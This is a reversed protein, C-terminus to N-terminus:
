PEPLEAGNGRELFSVQGLDDRARHAIEAAANRVQTKLHFDHLVVFRDRPDGKVPLKDLPHDLVQNSVRDVGGILGSADDFHSQAPPAPPVLHLEADFVVAAAHRGGLAPPRERGPEARLPATPPQPQRKRPTDHALVMVAPDGDHFGHGALPGGHGHHQRLGRGRVGTGRLGQASLGMANCFLFIRHASSSISRKFGWMRSRSDFPYRTVETEFPLSATAHASRSFNSTMRSSSDIGPSSPSAVSSAILPCSGETGITSTVFFSASDSMSSAMPFRM